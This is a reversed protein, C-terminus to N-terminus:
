DYGNLEILIASRLDNMIKKMYGLRSQYNDYKDKEMKLLELFDQNNIIDPVKPRKRFRWSRDQDNVVYSETINRDIQQIIPSLDNNLLEIFTQFSPLVSEYTNIIRARLSDNKIIDFGMSKLADYPGNDFRVLIEMQCYSYLRMFTDDDIAQKSGHYFLLSDIGVKKRNLRMEFITGYIELDKDISKNIEKLILTERTQSKRLENWNNIQLAILIGIVVLVIEGIAYKFYKASKGEFLLNQRINRFFKIM